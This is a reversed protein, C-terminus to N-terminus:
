TIKIKRLIDYFLFGGQNLRAPWGWLPIIIKLVDQGIDIYRLSVYFNM